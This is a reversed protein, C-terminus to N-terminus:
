TVRRYRGGRGRGAYPCQNAALGLRSWRTKAGAGARPKVGASRDDVGTGCNAGAGTGEQQRRPKARKLVLSLSGQHGIDDNDAGLPAVFPLALDDVPQRNSRVHDYAELTAVISPVSQDDVSLHELECQKRGSDNPRALKRDDAVTDDEIGIVQHILDFFYAALAHLHRGCVELNGLVDREDQRQVAFEVGLSFRPAGASRLDARGFAADARGVLVLNRPSRDPEHVEGLGIREVVLDLTQQGVMMRQTTAHPQGGRAGLGDALLKQGDSRFDQREHRRSELQQIAFPARALANQEFARLARHEVDIVAGIRKDSRGVRHRRLAAVPDPRPGLDM